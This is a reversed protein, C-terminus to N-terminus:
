RATAAQSHLAAQWRVHMNWHLTDSENLTPQRSPTNKVTMLLNTHATRATSTAERGSKGGQSQADIQTRM